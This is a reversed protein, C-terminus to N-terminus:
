QVIRPDNSSVHQDAIPWNKGRNKTGTVNGSAKALTLEAWSGPLHRYFKVHTNPESVNVPSLTASTTLLRPPVDTRSSLM